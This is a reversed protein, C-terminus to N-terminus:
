EKKIIKILEAETSKINYIMWLFFLAMGGFIILLYPWVEGFENKTKPKKKQEGNSINNECHNERLEGKNNCLCENKGLLNQDCKFFKTIIGLTLGDHFILHCSKLIESQQFEYIPLSFEWQFENNLFIMTRNEKSIQLFSEENECFFALELRIKLKLKKQIFFTRQKLDLFLVFLEGNEFSVYFIGTKKSPIIKYIESNSKLNLKAIEKPSEYNDSSLKEPNENLLWSILKGKKSVMILVRMKDIKYSFCDLIEDKEELNDYTWFPKEAFFDWIKLSIRNSDLSLFFNKSEIDLFFSNKKSSFKTFNKIVAQTEIELIFGSNETLILLNSDNQLPYIDFIQSEVNLFLKKLLKKSHFDWIAISNDSSIGVIQSKENLVMFKRINQSKEFIASFSSFIHIDKFNQSEHASISMKDAFYIFNEKSFISSISFHEHEVPLFQQNEREYFFIREKNMSNEKIHLFYGKEKFSVISNIESLESKQSFHLKETFNKDIFEILIEQKEKHFTFTKPTEFSGGIFNRGFFPNEKIELSLIDFIIQKNDFLGYIKKTENSFIAQKISNEEPFKMLIRQKKKIIGIEMLFLGNGESFYLYMEDIEELYIPFILSKEEYTMEVLDFEYNLLFIHRQSILLIKSEFKVPVIDLLSEISSIPPKFLYIISKQTFNYLFFENSESIGMLIKPDNTIKLMKISFPLDIRLSIISSIMMFWLFDYIKM